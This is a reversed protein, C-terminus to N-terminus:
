SLVSPRRASLRRAHLQHNRLSEAVQHCDRCLPVTRGSNPECGDLIRPVHHIEFNAATEYEWIGCVACYLAGGFYEM